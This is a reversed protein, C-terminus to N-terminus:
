WWFYPTGGAGARVVMNEFKRWEVHGDLMTLNGGAPMSGKLHPSIHPIYNGSNVPRQYGGQVSTYNNGGRNVQDNGVSITADATLVRDSPSPPPLTFLGNQIPQPTLKINANSAILSATGNLTMGFGLVHINNPSFLFYLAYNDGDMSFRPATGPCYLTQWQTGSSKFSDGVPWPLDWAWYTPYGVSSSPLFDKNDGAYMFMAIGFQKENSKCQTIIAKQKAKALAPLLM